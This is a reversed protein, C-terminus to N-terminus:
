SYMSSYSPSDTGSDVDPDFRPGSSGTKFQFSKSAQFARHCGVVLGTAIASPDIIGTVRIRRILGPRDRRQATPRKSRPSDTKGFGAIAKYTLTLRGLRM